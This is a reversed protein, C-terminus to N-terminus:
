RRNVRVRKPRRNRTKRRDGSRERQPRRKEKQKELEKIRKKQEPTLKTEPPFMDKIIVRRVDKYFPVLGLNGLVELLLRDEIEDMAKQRTEPKKATQSSVGVKLLRSLTNIVPGYPGSFSDVFIEELSKKKLDEVGIQSFVISHKYKDYEEGGRLGKLLDRNVSEELYFNIPLMPINGLSQRALLSIMAGVIQRAMVDEIDEDKDDKADFLEEDLVSSLMSYATMYASMRFTIGALLGAAEAKSLDGKNFLAFIANRATGFEFLSFRAMFSNAMRYIGMQMSDDTRRMNKIIADAANNSTAVTIVENDALATANDRAEKFEPSLYKSTGDAIEQFDKKTIKVDEGTLEKVQAEFNQAWNGFWLPRSMAKDPFTIINSAIANVIRGTLKLGSYKLIEGFVNNLRSTAAGAKSDLGGYDSMQTHKSEMVDPNYLKSTQSSRLNTMADFGATVNKPNAVWTGFNKFARMATAPNKAIIGFNAIIEAGMRYVSGLTAQYGLRMMNMASLNGSPTDTYTGKLIVDVLETKAKQIANIAQKADKNGTKAEEKVKNLTQDVERLTQTMEFDMITEQAGRMASYGPDFSIAKAGNTREVLTNSKASNVNNNVKDILKQVSQDKTKPDLVVRHSYNNYLEVPVGHLNAAIYEADSALSNNVDDYLALAKKEKATLSNEIKTLSIEGDVEFETKLENLIKADQENLIGDNEIAELTKNIFDIASPTKANPKGDVFNSEHERQLQLIRLKYKKKVLANRTIGLRNGDTNLLKAAADIKTQLRKIRSKVTELSRALKGFTNNYITKSNRNGFVDDIFFTSLSRIRETLFGRKTKLDKLKSYMNTVADVYKNMRFKQILPNVKNFSDLANLKTAIDTVAKGAFGNKINEIIQELVKLDSNDLQKMQEPTMKLIQRADEKARKDPINNLDAETVEKQKESINKIATDADFDDPVPEAKISDIDENINEQVANLIDLAKPLTEQAKKFSPVKKGSGYEKALEIFSDLQAEPILSPNISFLTKLAAKLDAPLVGTKAGGVQKKAKKSQSKATNLRQVYDQKTFVNDVFTLFSDVSKKNNLNVNAFRKTIAKVKSQSIKGLNKGFSSILGAINKMSKKYAAASERAAKAQRRIQDKLATRENVVVKKDKPKGLIKKVSPAKKIKIGLKENLERVLQNRETDNLQQYLKSNQLYKLTNDLIKKPSTSEGVKRGKTKKIIDNIISQVRNPDAKVEPTKPAGIYENSSIGQKQADRNIASIVKQYLSSGEQGQQISSQRGDSLIQQRSKKDIFRSNIAKKDSVEYTINKEDLIDLLKALKADKDADSFDFIDLLSLLNNTESLTYEDIGAEKLAQFTGESDSVKITIENGNHNEAGETTYEAAISSEQVEPALAATIAAYQSAQELTANKLKVVNSVERVKTGADNVYGGVSEEVEVELGMDNAIETLKTKYEQYQPSKRLGGAESTSEISTEFFPAVNVSIEEQTQTEVPKDVTQNQTEGEQTVVGAADGEGVEPSDTTSEQVDVQTASSEQIANARENIQQDTPELIGESILQDKAQEKAEEDDLDKINKFRDVEAATKKAAEIALKLLEKQKNKVQEDSPKDVGEEQLAQIAELQTVSFYKELGDPLKVTEGVDSEAEKVINDLEENIQKLREKNEPSDPNEMNDREQLLEIYKSRREGKLNDPTQQNLNAEQRRNTYKEQLATDNEIVFQSDIIEQDTMTDIAAEVDQKSMLMKTGKKTLYGYSPPKFFNKGKGVMNNGIDTLSMGSVAAPVSLVSSAQGTIGEFGIEAVDMEQGTVARATAEGGAGGVAEIGAAKLAARAKMGKTIAKDAAKAAKITSGGIKSAAGRTFADITGIVLGRAMAKNRISQMATPNNLIKRVGDKDFKFGAQDVEEKMFETFALGTELTASAGLIAGNIGGGIGGAFGAIASGVPGGIAGAVAGTGAGVGAGIAGGAAAGGIVDANVMSAVSSVFLQGIVTPNQAVGFIFGLVGGGENEYIRNFDKMEDSMGYNDMNKVAAIYKEVDGESTESGSVFLRRADDITAGQGMGQAGARYMDGFFDTVTNKGLMEELWTNKEGVDVNAGFKTGVPNDPLPQQVLSQNLSAPNLRDVSRNPSGLSGAGQPSPTEEAPTQTGSDVPQQPGEGSFDKKKLPTLFEGFQEESEFVGEPLMEFLDETGEDEIFEQLEEVDRFTGEPVMAFLDELIKLQIENM